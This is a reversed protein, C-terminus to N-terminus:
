TIVASVGESQLFQSRMADEYIHDAIFQIIERAQAKLAAPKGNDSEVGALAALIQWLLRRSGIAEAALRAQEFASKALDQEGNLLHAKGKLFLAEPIYQGVKFQQSDKVVPDIIAIAQVHDKRALALRCQALKLTYDTITNSLRRAGLTSAALDLQGTAIECLAYGVAAPTWAAPAPLEQNPVRTTRYLDMGKQVAGIQIYAWCLDAGYWKTHIPANAEVALHVSADLEEFAKDVEGYEFWIQGQLHHPWCQAWINKTKRSVELSEQAIELAKEYKGSWVLNLLLTNLNDNLMPMNGLERWLGAAEILQAEGEEFRCAVNYARGLDTLTYPIQERLNLSRALSLSREGYDIAQDTKSGHLNALLLNWLVRCEISQDGLEQALKLTEESLAQGKEPDMVATPTSYLTSAAVQADLEMRRDKRERATTLMEDYNKLAQEFQGTLEMARGRHTYIHHLQEATIVAEKGLELARTYAAIAENQAYIAFAADGAQTWYSVGKEANGAEDYHRALQLAFQDTHDVSIAELTEAIEGHLMRREGASLEDYLYQQTLAHSFRYISLFQKGIKIEGQESVLLYRKELERSLDKVLEREELKQVRAIVQATFEYGMVSATTLTEHLGEPLRAIREGIVGEVRAPLTEWDLTSGQIWCGGKDKVLNGREQLNRLLEVTFLPHGDTHAFLAERFAANLHNPESDILENTFARGEDPDARSLDLVIDGHYRKLENLISEFPHRAGDRGLAVDDPRYTGILLIRGDKLEHALHFLLNLSGSDAWQLDDLVLILTHDKSLGKLVSAFQEFIKEQDLAPNVKVPESGTKKGERKTLKHALGSSLAAETAIRTLLGAVPVFIGILDPGVKILTESSVHVFEKLRTTNKAKTIEAASKKEEPDTTLFTLVQRFPLYPDGAGTQANCQGIATILKPDADERLRIFEEVLATKGAGAEGAIFILQLQGGEARKLSEELRQLETKRGIFTTQAM